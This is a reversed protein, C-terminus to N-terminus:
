FKWFLDPLFAPYGTMRRLGFVGIFIFITGVGLAIGCATADSVYGQAILRPSGFTRTWPGVRITTGTEEDAEWQNFDAPRLAPFIVELISYIGGLLLGVFPIAKLFLPFWRM